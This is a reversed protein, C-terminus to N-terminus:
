MAVLSFQFCHPQCNQITLSRVGLAHAEKLPWHKNPADGTLSKSSKMTACSLYSACYNLPTDYDDLHSLSLPLNQLYMLILEFVM